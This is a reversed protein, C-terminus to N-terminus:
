LCSAFYNEESNIRLSSTSTVPIAAIYNQLDDTGDPKHKEHMETTRKEHMKKKM